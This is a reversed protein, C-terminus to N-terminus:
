CCTYDAKTNFYPMKERSELRVRIFGDRSKAGCVASSAETVLKVCREVAQTHCPYKPFDIVPAAGIAVFMKIDNESIDTLVPPETIVTKQWDILDFYDEANFNLDPVIFQRVGKGGSNQSRAKLIRRLGLERIHERHDTVMCLLINEPHAFFANRSIVPDVIAKHEQSLYRSKMITNLVHKAGDKCSCNIKIAFWMPAYVKIIYTVITTLNVSPEKTSVYLRLLRNATTLWRAHSIAGPDKRSLEMSCKGLIVAQCMDYLYRQDTSLDVDNLEPLEGDVAQFVAVPLKECSVLQRGLPGSFARPGSTAGDIYKLLHRLPLENAHLQCVLWQLPKELELEILRITGGIRGTNANTGDCGIAVLKDLCKYRDKLFTMISLKADKATGSLPAVHGIYKSGPEEVLSLHEEMVKRKYWRSGHKMITITSDKRGDFYLSRVVGDLDTKQISQRKAQRARRVKSRDIVSSTEEQTIVGFDQLVASAIAAAARDSVQHRDCARALTPLHVKLRKKKPKLSNPTQNSKRTHNGRVESLPIDDDSDSITSHRDKLESLTINDDAEPDSEPQSDCNQKTAECIDAFMIHREAREKEARKRKLNRNIKKTTAIDVRGIFMIRLNRQDNLFMQEGAPVKRLKDCKCLDFKCKCAAIDFLSTKGEERFRSLKEKYKGEQQRGKFPKLLKMYKGRYRCLLQLVRKRSVIPISARHWIEEIKECVTESIDAVLPEKSTSSLKMLNRQFLYFKLVDQYTPLVNDPLPSPSGFIPCNVDKRTTLQKIKAAM